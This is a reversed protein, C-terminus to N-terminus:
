PRVAELAVSDQFRDRNEVAEFIPNDGYECSRIEHFGTNRLVETLSRQDWMWRHRSNGFLRRLPSPMVEEGLGSWRMLRSAADDAAHELYVTALKRLDPVIVRLIGNPLLLDFMNHLAKLCGQYTLHELTHCCFVAQCSSPRMHLGRVINGYRVNAPFRHPILRGLGPISGLLVTPSADINRWTSPANRGCGVNLLTVPELVEARVSRRSLGKGTLPGVGM